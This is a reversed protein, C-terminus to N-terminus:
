YFWDGFIQTNSNHLLVQFLTRVRCIQAVVVSPVLVVPSLHTVVRCDLLSINCILLQPCCVNAEALCKRWHKSMGTLTGVTWDSKISICQRPVESMGSIFTCVHMARTFCIQSSQALRVSILHSCCMHHKASANADWTPATCDVLACRMSETSRKLLGTGQGWVPLLVATSVYPMEWKYPIKQQGPGVLTMSLHKPVVVAM